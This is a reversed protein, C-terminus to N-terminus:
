GLVSAAGRAWEKCASLSPWRQALMKEIASSSSNDDDAVLVLADRRSMTEEKEHVCRIPQLSMPWPFGRIPPMM